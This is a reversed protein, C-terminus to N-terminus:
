PKGSGKEAQAPGAIQKVVWERMRTWRQQPSEDREGWEDNMYAVEQALCTAINFATAVDEPETPDLKEMDLGRARGLSGMACVEGNEELEGVILVKEPMSDLAALLDKFFQQGRKGRIASAVMGRWKILQWNDIEDNYNSRSM